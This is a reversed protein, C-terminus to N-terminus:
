GINLTRVSLVVTGGPNYQDAKFTFTATGSPQLIMPFLAPRTQTNLTSTMGIGDTMRYGNKVNANMIYLDADAPGPELAIIRTYAATGITFDYLSYNAVIPNASTSNSGSTQTTLYHTPTGAGAFGSFTGVQLLEEQPAYYDGVSGTKYGAGGLVYRWPIGLETAGLSNGQGISTLNSNYSVSTFQRTTLTRDWGTFVPYNSYVASRGVVVLATAASDWFADYAPLNPNGNAGRRDGQDAYSTTDMATSATLSSAGLTFTQHYHNPTTGVTGTGFVHVTGDAGSVGPVYAFSLPDYNNTSAWTGTGFPAQYVSGNSANVAVVTAHASTLGRHWFLWMDVEPVYKQVSSWSLAYGTPAVNNIITANFLNTTLTLNYKRLSMTVNGTTTAAVWELFYVATSAAATSFGTNLPVAANGAVTGAVAPNIAVSAQQTASGASTGPLLYFTRITRSTAAANPILTLVTGGGTVGLLQPTTAGNGLYTNNNVTGGTAPTVATASSVVFTAAPAAPAWTTATGGAGATLVYGSTAGTSKIVTGEVRAGGDTTGDHVHGTTTDLVDARLNNYQSALAASGATVTGSNAV